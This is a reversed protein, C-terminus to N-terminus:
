WVKGYKMMPVHICCYEINGPNGKVVSYTCVSYCQSSLMVNLMIYRDYLWLYQLPNTKVCVNTVIPQIFSVYTPQFTSTNKIFGGM